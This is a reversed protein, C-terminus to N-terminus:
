IFDKEITGDPDYTDLIKVLEADVNDFVGEYEWEFISNRLTVTLEVINRRQEDSVEEVDTM